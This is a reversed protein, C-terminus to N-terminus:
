TDALPLRAVFRAGIPSDEVTLMGGHERAIERAIPLGLGTGGADKSRAADLRTFRQFVVERKDPPIGTGDDLVELVATGGSQAVTVTVRESAHREANDVLNTLMRALRLRDGYVKVGPELVRSVHVRRARRNLESTVLQSLDLLERTSPAGADLRALMLLDSVLAELRELSDLQAHSVEMWDTEEPHLMAAEVQARMATLPSRLDHSADSAFRRQQEVLKELRDLTQNVIVALRRIEDHAAPVPVRRGLDTVNIEALEASIDDVPRLTKGVIRYTGLATIVVLLVSGAALLGVLRPDVYWPVATDAAYVTWDSEERYVRFAVVIMCTDPFAPLACEERGARMASRSITMHSIPPQGLLAPTASIVRGESNVVQVYKVETAPLVAPLVGREVLHVVKLSANTIQDTRYSEALGHVGLLALVAVALSLLAM